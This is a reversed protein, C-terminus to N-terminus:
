KSFGQAVQPSFVFILFSCFAAMNPVTSRCTRIHFYLLNLTSFLMTNTMFQLWLIAAINQVRSFLTQELYITTFLEMFTIVALYIFLFIVLLITCSVTGDYKLLKYSSSFLYFHRYFPRTIHQKTKFFQKIWKIKAIYRICLAANRSEEKQNYKTVRLSSCLNLNNSFLTNRPTNPVTLSSTLSSYIKTM